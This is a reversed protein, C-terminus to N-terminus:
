FIQRFLVRNSLLSVDREPTELGYARHQALRRLVKSYKKTHNKRTTSISVTDMFCSPNKHGSIKCLTFGSEIEHPGKGALTLGAVAVGECGSQGSPLVQIYQLAHEGEGRVLFPGVGLHEVVQQLLHGTLVKLHVAGVGYLQKGVNQVVKARGLVILVLLPVVVVRAKGSGGLLLPERLNGVNKGHNGSNFLGM